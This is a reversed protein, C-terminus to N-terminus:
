SSSIRVTEEGVHHDDHGYEGNCRDDVNASFGGGSRVRKRDEEGKVQFPIVFIPLSFLQFLTQALSNFSLSRVISQETTRREDSDIDGDLGQAVLTEGKDGPIEERVGRFIRKATEVNPLEETSM